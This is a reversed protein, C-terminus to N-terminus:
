RTQLIPSTQLCYCLADWRRWLLLHASLSSRHELIHSSQLFSPKDKSSTAINNCSVISEGPVFILRFHFPTHVTGSKAALSMVELPSSSNMSFLHDVYVHFCRKSSRSHSLVQASVYMNRQPHSAVHTDSIIQQM